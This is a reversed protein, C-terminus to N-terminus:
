ISGPTRRGLSINATGSRGMFAAQEQEALRKRRESALGQFQEKELETQQDAATAPSGYIQGLKTLTPATQAIAEFGTRAQERTVGLNALEQARTTSLGRIGAETAVEAGAIKRKLEQATKDGSLISAALDSESINFEELTKLQAKLNTDAYRIRDYVNQVLDVVESASKRESILEAFQERTALKGLNFRNLIEAYTDEAQLYQAPSYVALGAAQRGKNGAFRSKYAETQPLLARITDETYGKAIYEEVATTLSKIFADDGPRNFYEKFLSNFIARANAAGSTVVASTVPSTPSVPKNYTAPDYDFTYENKPTISSPTVVGGDTRQLVIPLRAKTGVPLNAQIGVNQNKIGSSFQDITSQPTYQTPKFVFSNSSEDYEWPPLGPIAQVNDRERAEKSAELTWMPYQTGTPIIWRYGPPPTISPPNTLNFIQENLTKPLAERKKTAASALRIDTAKPGVGKNLIALSEETTLGGAASIAKELDAQLAKLESNAQIEKASLGQLELERRKATVASAAAKRVEERTAM